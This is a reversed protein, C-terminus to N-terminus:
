DGNDMLDSLLGEDTELFGETWFALGRYFDTKSFTKM